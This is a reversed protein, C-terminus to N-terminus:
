QRGNGYLSLIALVNPLFKITSSALCQWLNYFFVISDFSFDPGLQHLPTLM